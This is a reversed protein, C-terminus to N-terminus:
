SSERTEAEGEGEPLLARPAIVSIHRHILSSPLQRSKPSVSMDFIADSSRSPRSLMWAVVATITALAIASLETSVQMPTKLRMSGISDFFADADTSATLADSSEDNDRPDGFLPMSGDKFTKGKIENNTFDTSGPIM